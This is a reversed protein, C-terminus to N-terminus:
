RHSAFVDVQMSALPLEVAWRTIPMKILTKIKHGRLSFHSAAILTINVFTTFRTRNLLHTSLFVLNPLCDMLDILLIRTFLEIPM